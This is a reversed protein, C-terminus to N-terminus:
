HPQYLKQHEIALYFRYTNGGAMMPRSRAVPAAGPAPPSLDVIADDVALLLYRVHATIIRERRLPSFYFTQGGERKEKYFFRTHPDVDVVPDRPECRMVTAAPVPWRLCEPCLSRILSSTAVNWVQEVRKDIQALQHAYLQLLIRLIPDLREASEPIQSNWVRLGRHMEAFIEEKTRAVGARSKGITGDV